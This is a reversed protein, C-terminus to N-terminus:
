WLVILKSDPMWCSNVLEQANYQGSFHGDEIVLAMKALMICQSSIWIIVYLRGEM